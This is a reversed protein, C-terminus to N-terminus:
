KGNKWLNQFNTKRHLEYCAIAVTNAVNICILNKNIPIRIVNNHYQELIEKKIGIQENGFILYIDEKNTEFPIDVPTKNGWRSFFFYNKNNNQLIFEDWNNYEHFKILDFHNTSSRKLKTKDFIFGYPRILHLEANFAYCTRAINGVNQIISPQYLVVHLKM